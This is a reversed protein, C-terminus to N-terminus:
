PGTWAEVRTVRGKGGVIIITWAVCIIIKKASWRVTSQKM